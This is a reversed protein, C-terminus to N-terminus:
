GHIIAIDPAIEGIAALQENIMSEAQTNIIDNAVPSFLSCQLTDANIEIEVPLEIAPQGKFIPVNLSFALPISMNSVVQRQLNTRNGRKDDSLEIEKEVKAKFNQFVAVLKMATEKDAFMFRNMKVASALEHSAFTKEPNNIGWKTFHPHLEIVGSIIASFKDAENIVLTIARNEISVYIHCWMQAIMTIKKKLWNAPTDINGKLTIKEPDYVKQADGTRIIIEGNGSPIVNFQFKEM